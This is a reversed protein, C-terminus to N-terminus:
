GGVSRTHVRQLALVVNKVKLVTNVGRRASDHNRKKSDKKNNDDAGKRVVSDCFSSSSFHCWVRGRSTALSSSSFRSRSRWFLLILALKAIACKASTLVATSM